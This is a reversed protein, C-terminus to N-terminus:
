FYIITAAAIQFISFNSYRQKPYVLKFFIPMTINRMGGLPTLMYIKKGKLLEVHQGIAMQFIYFFIIELIM